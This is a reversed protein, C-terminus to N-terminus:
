CTPPSAAAKRSWARAPHARHRHIRPQLAPGGPQGAADGQPGSGHITRVHPRSRCNWRVMSRLVPAPTSSVDSPDRPDGTFDVTRIYVLRGARPRGPLSPSRGPLAGGVMEADARARGRLGPDPGAMPDLSSQPASGIRALVQEFDGRWSFVGELCVGALRPLRNSETAPRRSTGPIPSRDASLM